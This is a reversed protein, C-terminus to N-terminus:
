QLSFLSSNSGRKAPCLPHAFGFELYDFSEDAVSSSDSALSPTEVQTQLQGEPVLQWHQLPSNEFPSLILKSVDGITDGIELTWDDNCFSHIIYQDLGEKENVSKAAWLQNHWDEKDKASYLCIETDQIIRLRGLFSVFM